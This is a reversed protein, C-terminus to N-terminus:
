GKGTKKRPAFLLAYVALYAAGVCIGADAINFAPWAKGPWYYVEIFDRVYGFVVRDYVNGVAGAMVLGLAVQLSPPRTDDRYAFWIVLGGAVVGFALWVLGARQGLGFVGGYNRGYVIHLFGPILVVPPYEAAIRGAQRAADALRGLEADDARDAFEDLRGEAALEALRPHHLEAAHRRLQEAVEARQEEAQHALGPHRTEFSDFVVHKSVLDAAACLIAVLWFLARVRTLLRIRGAREPM